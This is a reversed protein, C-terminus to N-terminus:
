PQEMQLWERMRSRFVAVSRADRVECPSENWKATSRVCFSRRAHETRVRPGHLLGAATARTERVSVNERYCIFDKLCLPAHMSYLLRHMMVLDREAVLEDVKPWKLGRLVPTMREQRRCCKVIRASHNIIKQVRKKQTVNCGAWVTACYLIHPFVLAEILLKKVEEPLRHTFKSLGSLTAYCRKRIVSVHKEFTLNSDLIIGLIKASESPHIMSNGFRVEFNQGMRRQRSSILVLDTKTPNIKLSNEIFWRQAKSLTAEIDRQLERQQNPLASHIFQVDDAYLVTKTDRLFSSLDNTFLLFLVPGLISGQVVGHTIPVTTSGGRVSQHRDSLWDRFWHGDVGYWGLKDLLRGHQVSDFAKSTDATTLCSIMGRDMNNTLHTVADLMASETSRGPRFGHQQDCLVNHSVLYQVLESCVVSEALKAVTPLISVPRYNGPAARDGSKFLPIVTAVKWECPLVGSTISTNIVKLLHPAIVPFTLRLMSVTIGDDGCAKSSSMRKLSDYLEPLTAPHVRFAGSM